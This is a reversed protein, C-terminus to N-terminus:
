FEPELDRIGCVFTFYDAVSWDLKRISRLAIALILVGDSLSVTSGRKGDNKETMEM